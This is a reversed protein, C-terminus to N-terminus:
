KMLYHSWSPERVEGIKSALEFSQGGIISVVSLVGSDGKSTAFIIM